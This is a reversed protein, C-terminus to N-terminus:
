IKKKLNLAIFLIFIVLAMAFWQLAYGYHREPPMAVVAWERVYGNAAPKGLRIIFPYVSKHLFQSILHTDLLEVIALNAKKKELAQGLLWNKESSYYASGTLQIFGSPTEIDPFIRRTVDGAVWGRDILVVHGDALVLPSVVDYGFQHQYHQNDLLLMTRLFHGQVQIPQYQAPLPNGSSWNSAKQQSFGTLAAMMQKKESARELQWFGLRMFFAIALLALITMAWRPKFLANFRTLFIMIIDKLIPTVCVFFTKGAFPPVWIWLPMQGLEPIAEWRRPFSM